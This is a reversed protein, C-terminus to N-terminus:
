KKRREKRSSKTNDSSAPEIALQQPGQSKSRLRQFISPKPLINNTSANFGTTGLNKVGLKEARSVWENEFQNEDDIHDFERNELIKGTSPDREKIIRHGREGLRHAIEMKELNRGTDRVAKRTRELGEPGRLQERTAQIIRPQGGNRNDMSMVTSSSFSVGHGNPEGFNNSSMITGMSQEMNNMINQMFSFPNNFLDLEQNNNNRQNQVLQRDRNGHNSQHHDIALGQFPDVGAFFPDNNFTSFM